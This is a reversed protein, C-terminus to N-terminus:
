TSEQKETAALIGALADEEAAHQGMERGALYMSTCTSRSTLLFVDWVHYLALGSYDKFGTLNGMGIVTALILAKLMAVCEEDALYEMAILESDRNFVESNYIDELKGMRTYKQVAFSPQDCTLQFGDAMAQLPLAVLSPVLNEMLQNVASISDAPPESGAMDRYVRRMLKLVRENYHHLHAPFTPDFLEKAMGETVGIDHHHEGEVDGSSLKDHMRSQAKELYEKLIDSNKSM